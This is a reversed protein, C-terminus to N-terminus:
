NLSTQSKKSVCQHSTTTEDEQFTTLVNWYSTTSVSRRRIAPHTTIIIIQSFYNHKSKNKWAKNAQM